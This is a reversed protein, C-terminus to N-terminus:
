SPEEQFLHCETPSKPIGNKGSVGVLEGRDNSGCSTLLLTVSALLFLKKMYM